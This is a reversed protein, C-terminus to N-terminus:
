EEELENNGSKVKKHIMDRLDGGQSFPLVLFLYHEMQKVFDIGLINPHKMEKM